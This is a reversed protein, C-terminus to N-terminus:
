SFQSRENEYNQQALGAEWGRDSFARQWAMQTANEDAIRQNLANQVDAQHAALAMQRAELAQDEQKLRSQEDVTLIGQMSSLAQAIEERRATVERGMLEAQMGSMKLQVDEGTMRATNENAGSAYAGGREAAAQQQKLAERNAVATAADVQGKIIPDDAKVDLGQQSRDLLQKYLDDWRPDRLGSGSADGGGGGFGGTGPAGPVGTGAGGPLGTGGAGPAGGATAAPANPDDVGWRARLAGGDGYGGYADVRTVGDWAKNLKAPDGSYVFNGKGDFTWGNWYDGYQSQLAKLLDQEQGRGYQTALSLFQYKPSQAIHAPDKLKNPDGEMLTTTTPPRPAPTAPTTFTNTSDPAQTTVPLGNLTGVNTGPKPAPKTPTYDITPTTGTNPPMFGSTAPKRPDFEPQDQDYTNVM